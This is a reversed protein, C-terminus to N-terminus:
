EGLGVRRALVRKAAQEITRRTLVESLETRYWATARKDTIPKIEERAFSAATAATVEDLPKGRLYKEAKQSRIVTPAVSGLAVRVNKCINVSERAAQKDATEGPYRYEVAYDSLAALEDRWVEWLPHRSLLLDLLASLDHTKKFRTGDEQLRGKLYKEACQQAHFCAADYNPHKRARLERLASHYDGEAKEIWESTLPTM